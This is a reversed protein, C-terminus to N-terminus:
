NFLKRNGKQFYLYRFTYKNLQIESLNQQDITFKRGIMIINNDIFINYKTIIHSKEM